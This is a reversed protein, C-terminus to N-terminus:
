NPDKKTLMEDVWTPRLLAAENARRWKEYRAM